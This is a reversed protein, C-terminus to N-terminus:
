FCQKNWLRMNFGWCPPAPKIQSHAAKPPKAVGLFGEMGTMTPSKKNPEEASIWRAKSVRGTAISDGASVEAEVSCVIIGMWNLM